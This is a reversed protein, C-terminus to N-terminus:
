GGGTGINKNKWDDFGPFRQQFTDLNVAMVSVFSVNAAEEPAEAALYQLREIRWPRMYLAEGLASFAVHAKHLIDADGVDDNNGEKEFTASDTDTVESSSLSNKNREKPNERNLGLSHPDLDADEVWAPPQVSSRKESNFKDVTSGSARAASDSSSGSSNSSSNLLTSGAAADKILGEMEEQWHPVSQTMEYLVDWRQPLWSARVLLLHPKAKVVQVADIGLPQLVSRLRYLVATAAGALFHKPRVLADPNVYLFSRFERSSRSYERILRLNSFISSLDFTMLRPCAVLLQQLGGETAIQLSVLRHQLAMPPIGILQPVDYLMQTINTGRPLAGSLVALTAGVETPQRSLMLPWRLLLQEARFEISPERKLAAQWRSFVVEFIPIEIEPKEKAVVEITATASTTNTIAEKKVM